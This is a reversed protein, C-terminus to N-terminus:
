GNSISSKTSDMLNYLINTLAALQEEKSLHAITSEVCEVASIVTKDNELNFKIFGDFEKYNGADDTTILALPKSSGKNSIHSFSEIRRFQICLNQLEDLGNKLHKDTWNREPVTAALNVISEFKADGNIYDILRSALEKVHPRQAVSAILKCRVKLDDDFKAALNTMIIQKFGSLLMDHQASLDEIATKLSQGLKEDINKDNEDLGFIEPLDELILKYPDNAAIVKNRFTKAEKTLVQAKNSESFSEGSTKKVWPPLAHVIKVIHKAIGLVLDGSKNDGITAKALTDLLHTQIKSIEFYRVGAEKPHKYIKTILEEDLEPIFIFQQTSDLDYFAIQGELSKLLALGYLRCLGSTLGFPAQMWRNYLDDLTIM